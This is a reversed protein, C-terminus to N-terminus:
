LTWYVAIEWSVDPEVGIRIARDKPSSTFDAGYIAHGDCPGGEIGMVLSGSLDTLRAGTTGGACAFRIAVKHSGTALVSLPIEFGGTGQMSTLLAGIPAPQSEALDPMAALSPSATRSSTPPPTASSQPSPQASCGALVVALAFASTRWMHEITVIRGFERTIGTSMATPGCTQTSGVHM